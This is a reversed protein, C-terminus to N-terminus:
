MAVFDVGNEMANRFSPNTYASHKEEFSSNKSGSGELYSKVMDLKVDKDSAIKSANAPKEPGGESGNTSQSSISSSDDENIQASYLPREKEEKKEQEVFWISLSKKEV